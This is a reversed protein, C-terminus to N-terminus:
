KVINHHNKDHMQIFQDYTYMPQRWGSIGEWKGEWGIGVPKPHRAEHMRVGLPHNEQM